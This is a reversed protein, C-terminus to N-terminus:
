ISLTPPPDAGGTSAQCGQKEFSSKVRPGGWQPAEVGDLVIGILCNHGHSRGKWVVRKRVLVDTIDRDAIALIAPNWRFRSRVWEVCEGEHDRFARFLDKYRVKAHPEVRCYLDAFRLVAMEVRVESVKEAVIM